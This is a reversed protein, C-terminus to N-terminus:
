RKLSYMPMSFGFGPDANEFPPAQRTPDHWFFRGTNEYNKWSPILHGIMIMFSPLRYDMDEAALSDLLNFTFRKRDLGAIHNKNGCIFLVGDYVPGIRLKSVQFKIRRSFSIKYFHDLGRGIRKTDQSITPMVFHFKVIALFYSPTFRKVALGTRAVLFLGASIFVFLRNRRSVPLIEGSRINKEGSLQMGVIIPPLQYPILPISFALVQTMLVAKIPMGTVKSLTDALPTLVAPIGPLTTALGTAVSILCLSLYNLFPKAKGLPLLATLENALTDGLGRITSLGAM